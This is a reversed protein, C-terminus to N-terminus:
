QLTSWDFRTTDIIAGMTLQREALPHQERWALQLALAATDADDPAADERWATRADFGTFAEQQLQQERYVPEPFDVRASVGAPRAREVDARLLDVAGRLEAAQVWGNKPIRLNFLFAPRAV